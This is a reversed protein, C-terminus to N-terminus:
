QKLIALVEPNMTLDEAKKGENNEIHIDIGKLLLLKVAYKNVFSVAFHLYSWGRNDVHNINNCFDFVYNIMEDNGSFLAHNFITFTDTASHNFNTYPTLLKVIDIHGHRSAYMIPITLSSSFANPNANSALLRSIITIHGKECAVHLPANGSLRNQKNVDAGYEILIDVIDNRNNGAAHYLPTMSTYPCYHNIVSLGYSTSLYQRIKDIDDSFLIRWM